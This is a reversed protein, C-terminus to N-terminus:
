SRKSVLSIKMHPEKANQNPRMEMSFIQDMKNMPLWSHAAPTDTQGEEGLWHSRLHCFGQLLKVMQRNLTNFIAGRQCHALFATWLSPRYSPM